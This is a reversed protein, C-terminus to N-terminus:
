QSTMSFPKEKPQMQQFELCTRCYKVYNEIDSNINVWYISECALLKTKNSAWTTLMSNSWHKSNIVKPIIICRGKMVIGDIVALDDKYSWYPRIDLHLQDKTAPWGSIINNKLWPLYGDQATAQQIQSISMCELANTMSQIADVRIDMGQIPEDKNEKHNHHSLWDTIFIKPGPKYLIKVRYQHNKTPNM